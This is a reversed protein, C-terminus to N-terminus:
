CESSYSTKSLPYGHLDYGQQIFCSRTYSRIRSINLSVLKHTLDDASQLLLAMDMIIKLPEHEIHLVIKVPEVLKHM